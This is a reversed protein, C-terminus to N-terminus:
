SYSHLRWMKLFDLFLRLPRILRLAACSYLGCRLSHTGTSFSDLGLPAFSVGGAGWRMAASTTRPFDM